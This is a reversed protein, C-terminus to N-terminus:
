FVRYINKLLLRCVLRLGGHAGYCVLFRFPSKPCLLAGEFALNRGAAFELDGSFPLRPFPCGLEAGEFALLGPLVGLQARVGCTRPGHHRVRQLAPSAPRQVTRSGGPNRRVRAGQRGQGDGRFSHAAGARKRRLGGGTAAGLIRLCTCLMHFAHPLQENREKESVPGNKRKQRARPAVAFRSAAQTSSKIRNEKNRIAFVENM